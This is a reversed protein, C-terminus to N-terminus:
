VGAILKLADEPSLNRIKVTKNRSKEGFIITVDKKKVRFFSALFESLAKNAKGDVAPATIKVSVADEYLGCFSSVSSRPVVHVKILIGDKDQKMWPKM